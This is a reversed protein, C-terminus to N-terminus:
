VLIHQCIMPLHSGLAENAITALKGLTPIAIGLLGRKERVQKSLSTNTYVNNVHRNGPGGAQLNDPLEHKNPTDSVRESREYRIEEVM